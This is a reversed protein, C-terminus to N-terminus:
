FYLAMQAGRRKYNCKEYFPVRDDQCDLTAKYCGVEKAKGSLKELLAKGAGKGRFSEDVVIDEVHGVLGCSHILKREVVLSGCGVVLGDVEVVMWHYYGDGKVEELLKEFVQREVKPSATLQQLVEFLGRDYDGSEMYRVKFAGM